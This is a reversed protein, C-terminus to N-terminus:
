NDVEVWNDSLIDSHSAQWPCIDGESTRIFIIPLKRDGWNGLHSDLDYNYRKALFLYSHEGPKNTIKKEDKLLKLAKSFTM